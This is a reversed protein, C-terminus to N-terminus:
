EMVPKYVTYINKYKKNRFFDIFIRKKCNLILMNQNYYRHLENLYVLFFLLGLISSQPVEPTCIKVESKLVIMVVHQPKCTLSTKILNQFYQIDKMKCMRYLFFVIMM